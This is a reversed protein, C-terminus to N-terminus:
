IWFDDWILRIVESLDVIRIFVYIVAAFSLIALAYFAPRSRQAMGPIHGSAVLSPIFIHGVLLNTAIFVVLGVTIWLHTLIKGIETWEIISLPAPDIM